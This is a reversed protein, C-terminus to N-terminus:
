KRAEHEPHEVRVPGSAKFQIQPAEVAGDDMLQCLVQDHQAGDWLEVGNVILTPSIDLTDIAQRVVSWSVGFEAALHATTSLFKTPDNM